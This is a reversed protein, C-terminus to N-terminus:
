KILEFKGKPGSDLKYDGILIDDGLIDKKTTDKSAIKGKYEVPLEVGDGAFVEYETFQIQDGDVTGKIKTKTSLQTWEITGEVTKPSKRSTIKLVLPFQQILNGEFSAGAVLFSLPISPPPPTTVAAAASATAAPVASTIMSLSKKNLTIKFTSPEAPDTTTKGELSPPKSSAPNYVFKASYKQPLELQDEECIAEYEEWEVTEAVSDVTGRFKSKAGELTPWEIEGSIDDGVRDSLTWFFPYIEDGASCTGCWKNDKILFSNIDVVVKKKKIAQDDQSTTTDPTSGATSVTTTTGNGDVDMNDDNNTNDATDDRSKRKKDTAALLYDKPELRKDAKFSESIYESKAVPVSLTTAKSVDVSIDDCIVITTKKNIARAITGGAEEIKEVLKDHEDQNVPTGLFVIVDSEFIESM